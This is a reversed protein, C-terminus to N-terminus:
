INLLNILECKVLRGLQSASILFVPPITNASWSDGADHIPRSLSHSSSRALHTADIGEVCYRYPGISESLTASYPLNTQDRIPVFSLEEVVKWGNFFAIDL